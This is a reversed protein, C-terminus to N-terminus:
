WPRTITHDLLAEFYILIFLSPLWIGVITTLTNGSSTNLFVFVGALTSLSFVLLRTLLRRTWAMAFTDFFHVAMNALITLVVLNYLITRYVFFDDGQAARYSNHFLYPATDIANLLLQRYTLTGLNPVTGVLSKGVVTQVSNVTVNRIIAATVNRLYTCVQSNYTFCKMKDLIGNRLAIRLQICEDGQVVSAYAKSVNIRCAEKLWNQDNELLSRAASVDGRERTMTYFRAIDLKQVNGDIRILSHMIIAM